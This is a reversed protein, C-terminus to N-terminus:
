CCGGTIPAGEEGGEFPSHGGCGPFPGKHDSWGGEFDFHAAFRSENLMRYTNGCVAMWEGTRFDHAKDLRFADPAETITGRYRVRQGFDECAADFRTNRFLRYTASQFRAPGLLDILGQDHIALARHTVLRPDAFGAARAISVFDNWYLAGALCEGHAREDKRTEDPLRRDAYVDAFYFEGGPKLIDFAGKLAAAKDECLNIVCNSVIVDFSEPEFGLDGLNQIDGEVFSVNAREYGFRDTHWGVHARAVALQRPTMDVGVVEGQRGVLQALAYVDRGSGSGLDLVRAGELALPAVLGCGYYRAAVEPHIKEFARALHPPTDEITCCADTALDGSTELTEGYYRKVSETISSSSVTTDVTM